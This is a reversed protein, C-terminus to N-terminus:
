TARSFYYLTMGTGFLAPPNQAGAAGGVAPSGVPVGESPAGPAPQRLGVGGPVGASRLVRGRGFGGGPIGGGPGAGLGTEASAPGALPNGGSLTRGVTAISYSAPGALLAALGASAALAVIRSRTAISGGPAARALLLLMGALVAVVMVAPALISAFGSARDLLMSALAADGILVVALAGAWAVSGRARDWLAVLGGAALVAVAPALATTYYPHFIGKSFSFVVCVWDHM